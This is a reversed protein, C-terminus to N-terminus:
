LERPLPLKFTVTTGGGAPSSVHVDGGHDTLIRKVLALGLGTGQAKTTFFPEFIRPRLEPAIGSGADRIDIRVRAHGNSGDLSARIEIPGGAPMAQAGNHLVNVLAQCMMRRDMPVPPLDSALQVQVTVKGQRQDAIDLHALALSEQIVGGLEEPQLNPSPPRAYHLLDTVMNNLREGEQQVVDLLARAEPRQNVMPSLVSVANFISGLPNRVEHAVMASLEGLGALRETRVVEARAEALEAYSQRLSEYLRANVVCLAVHNLAAQARAVSEPPFPRPGRVDDLVAAGVLEERCILPVALLAKQGFQQVLERQVPILTTRVDEIVVPQRTRAARAAASPATLPITVQHAVDRHGMSSAMKALQRSKEDYLLIFCNSVDLLKVMADCAADLIVELQLTGSTIRALDLMLRTDSLQRSALGHDDANDIASAVLRGFLRLIENSHSLGPGALVLLEPGGRTDLPLYVHSPDLEPGQYCPRGERLAEFAYAPELKVEPDTLADVTMLADLELRYFGAWFSGTRLQELVQRRVVAGTRSAVLTTAIEVLVLALDHEAQRSRNSLVVVVTFPEGEASPFTSTQTFIELERGDRALLRSSLGGPALPRGSGRRVTRDLLRRRDTPALFEIVDRGEADDRSYGSLELWAENVAQLKQERFVIVPWEFLEIHARIEALTFTPPSM